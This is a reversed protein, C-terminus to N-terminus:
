KVGSIIGAWKSQKPTEPVSPNVRARDAPSLGLIGIWGRLERWLKIQQNILPSEKPEASGGGHEDMFLKASLMASAEPSATQAEFNRRILDYVSVAGLLALKDSARVWHGCHQGLELWLDRQRENLYDPPDPFTGVPEPSAVADREPRFTGELVRLSASKRKRGSGARAGGHAM